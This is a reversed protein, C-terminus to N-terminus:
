KIEESDVTLVEWEFNKDLSSSHLLTNEIDSLMKSSAEKESTATVQESFLLRINVSYEKSKKRKPM